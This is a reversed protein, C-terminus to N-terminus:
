KLNKVKEFVEGYKRVAGEWTYKSAQKRAALSLGDRLKDDKLIRRIEFGFKKFDFTEVKLMCDEPVWKLGEIDFGVMPKAYAMSELVVMSFTEFRSPAVVVSANQFLVDKIEGDVKGTLIINKQLKYRNILEKIREIDGSSGAGAIVLKEKIGAFRYAKILLDLGKQNFELRGVFLIYPEEKVKEGRKRVVVGNTIIFIMANKNILSIKEKFMETLVIFYKYTKLGRKEIVSFPFKYKREMDEASLMHVLGVVPKKTFLQLCSTSFPPTFSEVWVDFKERVVCFPLLFHFFLQGIKPGLFSFGIRKYFVNDVTQNRAGPYNATLVVVEYKGVLRKAVEHIARSGGGGYYPNNMDDYTSFIIKM